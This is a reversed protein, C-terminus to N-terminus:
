YLRQSLYCLFFVGLSCYCSGWRLVFGGGPSSLTLYGEGSLLYAKAMSLRSTLPFVRPGSKHESRLWFKKGFTVALSTAFCPPFFCFIMIPNIIRKWLRKRGSLCLELRRSIAPALQNLMMNEAAEQYNLILDLFHWEMRNASASTIVAINLPSHRKSKKLNRKDLDRKLFIASCPSSNPCAMWRRRLPEIQYSLLSEILDSTM